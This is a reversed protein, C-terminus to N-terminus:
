CVALSTDQRRSIEERLVEEIRDIVRQWDHNRRVYREANKGLVSLRAPNNLLSVMADMFGPGLPEYIVGDEEEKLIQEDGEIQELVDKYRKYAKVVEELEKQERTRQLYKEKNKFIGPESLQENIKEYRDNIKELKNLM